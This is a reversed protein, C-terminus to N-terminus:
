KLGWPMRKNEGNTAAECFFPSINAGGDDPLCKAATTRWEIFSVGVIASSPRTLYGCSSSVTPCNSTLTLGNESYSRSTAHNSSLNANM